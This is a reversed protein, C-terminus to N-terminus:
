EGVLAESAEEQYWHKSKLRSRESTLGGCGCLEELRLVLKTVITSILQVQALPAKVFQTECHALLEPHSPLAPQHANFLPRALLMPSYQGATNAPLSRLCGFM